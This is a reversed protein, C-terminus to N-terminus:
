WWRRGLLFEYWLPHGDADHYGGRCTGAYCSGAPIGHDALTWVFLPMKMYTMGPARLNVVTAIINISGMISSLGLIHVGFIFFTVTPPAYTTSLPAYFTWGFNPAGGEM